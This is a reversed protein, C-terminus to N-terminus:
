AAKAVVRSQIGEFLGRGATEKPYGWKQISVGWKLMRKKKIKEQEEEEDEEEEKQEEKVKAKGKGEQEENEEEKEEKM